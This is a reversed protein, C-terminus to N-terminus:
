ERRQVGMATTLLQRTKPAFVLGMVVFGLGLRGLADSNLRLCIVGAAIGLTMFAPSFLGRLPLPEM